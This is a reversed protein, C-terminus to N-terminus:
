QVEVTEFRVTEMLMIRNIEAANGSCKRQM